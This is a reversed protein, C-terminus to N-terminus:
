VSIEFWSSFYWVWPLYRVRFPCNIHWNKFPEFNQHKWCNRQSEQLDTEPASTQLWCFEGHGIWASSVNGWYGWAPLLQSNLYSWELEVSLFMLIKNQKKASKSRLSSSWCCSVKSFHCKCPLYCLPSPFCFKTWTGFLNDLALTLNPMSLLCGSVHLAGLRPLNKEHMFQIKKVSKFQTCYMLCSCM